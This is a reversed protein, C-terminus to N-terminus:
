VERQRAVPGLARFAFLLVLMVIIFPLSQRIDGIDQSSYGSLYSSVAGYLGGGIFAPVLAVVTLVSLTDPTLTMQRALLMATLGSLGSAMTWSLLSMRGSSIGNLEAGLEDQAAADMQLGTTTYRLFAFLGGAALVAVVAIAIADRSTTVGWFTINGMGVISPVPQPQIGWKLIVIAQFSIMIGLTLITAELKGKVRQMGVREIFAGCAIGFGVAVLMAVGAPVHPSASVAFYAGMTGIAGHAFNIVGNIRYVLVLGLGLLSFGLGQLGGVILLQKTLDASPM